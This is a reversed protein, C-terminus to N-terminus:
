IHLDPSLRTSGDALAALEQVTKGTLLGIGTPQPPLVPKTAVMDRTVNWGAQESALSLGDEVPEGSVM